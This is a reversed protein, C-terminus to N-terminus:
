KPAPKDGGPAAAPPPAPAPKVFVSDDIPVNLEVTQLVIKLPSGEGNTAQQDIRFPFKMGEVERYDTPRSEVEVDMGNAKRKFIEKVVLFTQADYYINRVKGTKATIKLQYTDAGDVKEKGVLEVTTGKKQYDSLSDDIESDEQFTRQDEADMAEPDTKGTFPVIQWGTHGDYAQVMTINNFTLDRRLKNPRKQRQVLTGQAMGADFNATLRLSQVTKLKAAGTAALNKGVIEDATQAALPVAVFSALVALLLLACRRM